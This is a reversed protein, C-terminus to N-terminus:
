RKRGEWQQFDPQQDPEPLEDADPPERRDDDARGNEACINDATNSQRDELARERAKFGVPFAERRKEISKQLNESPKKENKGADNGVHKTENEQDRLNAMEYYSGAEQLEDRQKMILGLDAALGQAGVLM